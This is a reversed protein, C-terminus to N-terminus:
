LEQSREKKMVLFESEILNKLYPECNIHIFPEERRKNLQHITKAIFSKGVGTEGLLIITTDMNDVHEILQMIKIMQKSNGIIFNKDKLKDKKIESQFWELTNETEELQRKIVM